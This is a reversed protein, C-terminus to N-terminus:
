ADLRKLYRAIIESQKEGLMLGSRSIFKGTLQINKNKLVVFM